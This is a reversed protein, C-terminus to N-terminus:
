TGDHTPASHAARIAWRSVELIEDERIPSPAGSRIADLFAALAAAQGKDQKGSMSNFKKWGLGSLKKFNDLMLWRGAAFAEYREKSLNQPGNAFYHITAISGDEFSLTLTAKDSALGDATPKGVYTTSLDMIPSGVMLRMLDIFHCAEGIIRGGGEDPHQSWHSAPIAGANITAILCKPESITDLLAKMKQAFPSFRRNFGVMLRPRNASLNQLLAEVADVEDGHVALPKEVFVNKGAKLAELTMPAHTDHRTTIVVTDIEEDSLVSAFDTSAEEFGAKRGEVAGSVGGRSVVTKLRAGAAKLGPATVRGGFGGAGIMAVVGARPETSAVASLLTRRDFKSQNREPYSLVLGLDGGKAVLRDYAEKVNEIDITESVLDRVDLRGQAMEALVAEFNRQETWRVFGVPYDAGDVEYAPDYRGPGYSCSVQFSLEKEYFDARSLNLGVVGVLVIRGRKRSMQAAQAVVEDGKTAAAIIVGDVGVGRTAALGAAVPDAGSSLDVTMAGWQEAKKLREKSFDVGIVQCGHARLLQVAMLGILGLGQVVFTEGLMPQALRCGQLAIAALPTFAAEEDSVNDPIKAVLNRGVVALEAHPANSVVRDGAKVHTVDHGVASIVGANCYGLPIPQDLKSRVAEITASFGDTRVKQLTQQVKDPQQLAKQVLNGRGFNLLMRETGASILTRRSEILVHRPRVSPAPADVLEIEGTRLSQLVQKM